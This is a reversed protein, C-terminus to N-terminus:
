GRGGKYHKITLSNRKKHQTTFMNGVADFSADFSGNEKLTDNIESLKKNMESIEMGDYSNISISGPRILQDNNYLRMVEAAEENPIGKFDKNHEASFIRENRHLIARFGGNNDLNGGPGTDETGDYFIPLQAIAANLGYVEKITNLFANPDGAQVKASYSNIAAIQLERRKQVRQIKEREKELDLRRKEEIAISAQADKQGALALARLDDQRKKSAEVEKSISEERKKDRDNLIKNEAEALREIAKVQNSYSMVTAKELDSNLQALQAKLQERLLTYEEGQLDKIADLQRQISGIRIKLIEQSRYREFNEETKFASRKQDLLATELEEQYKIARITGDETVKDIDDQLKKDIELLLKNLEENDDYQQRLEKKRREAALKLQIIQRAEANKIGEARLDQAQQNLETAADLVIKKMNTQHNKELQELEESNGELEKKKKEYEVQEAALLKSQGEKMNEVQMDRLRFDYEMNIRIIADKHQKELEQLAKYNGRLQRKREQYEFNELALAQERDNKHNDIVIRIYDRRAQAYIEQIRKQHNIELLELAKQNDKLADQQREYKVYEAAIQKEIGEEMNDLLLDFYEQDEKEELDREQKRIEAIRAAYDARKLILDNYRDTAEKIDSKSPGFFGLVNRGSLRSQAAAFGKLLEELAKEQAAIQAETDRLVQETKARRLTILDEEATGVARLAREEAEYMELARESAEASKNTEETLRRTAPSVGLDLLSKIEKWYTILLVLGGIITASALGALALRLNKVAGTSQGVVKSYLIQAATQAKTLLSDKNKLENQIAQLGNVVAMIAQLKVMQKQLDETSGGLLTSAGEAISFAGAIGQAANVLRDIAGTDSAALKIADNIDNLADVGEGVERTFDQFLKSNQGLSIGLQRTAEQFAKSQQRTSSFQKNLGETVVILLQERKRLEELAAGKIAPDNLSKRIISLEDQVVGLASSFSNAYNGVNRQFRGTEQELHSLEATLDNITKKLAVGAPTHERAAKTMGDYARQANNLKARLQDISGAASLEEKALNKTALTLKQTEIRAKTIEDVNGNLAQSYRDQAVTLQKQVKEYETAAVKAKALGETAGKADDFNKLPNSKAAQKTAQLVEKIKSANEGLVDNLAKLGEIVDPDYLDSFKLKKAM